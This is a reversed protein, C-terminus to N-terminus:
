CPMMVTRFFSPQVYLAVRSMPVVRWVGVVVPSRTLRIRGLCANRTIPKARMFFRTSSLAQGTDDLLRCNMRRPGM